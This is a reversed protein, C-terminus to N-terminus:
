CKEVTKLTQMWYTEGKTPNSGDTKDILMASVDDRFVSHRESEFHKSLHEQMCQKRRDFSRNKSKYNNWRSRVYDTTQGTYQKECKNCTMLYVVCKDNCDFPHNMKFTEGTVTSTFPDTKTIHKCVEWCKSGCKYCSVTRNIPYLKPLLVFRSFPTELFCLM